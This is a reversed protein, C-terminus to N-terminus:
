DIRFMQLLNFIGGFDNPRVKPYVRVRIAGITAQWRLGGASM